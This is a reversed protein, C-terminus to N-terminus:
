PVRVIKVSHAADSGVLWATYVGPAVLRGVINRGDWQVTQSGSLLGSLDLRRIVHGGGDM